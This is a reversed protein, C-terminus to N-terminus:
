SKIDVGGFIVSGTLLLVKKPPDGSNPDDISGTKDDYGGFIAQGSSVVHWSEPVRLEVGGFIANIELEAQPVQMNAHSLDLEVGGFIANISGGRFDQTVVRREVGGFVAVENLTNRLDKAAPHTTGGSVAEGNLPANQAEALRRRGEFSGWMVLLGVAILIVPWLQGWGFHAVGLESLQFLIGALLLIIGFFRGSRCTLNMIGAVILILPWFRFLRSAPFINLNDLLFFLGVLAILGGWLLSWLPSVSRGKGLHIGVVVGGRQNRGRERYAM